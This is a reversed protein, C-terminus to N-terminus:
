SPAPVYCGRDKKIRKNVSEGLIPIGPLVFGAERMAGTRYARRRDQGTLVPSHGSNHIAGPKNQSVIPRM